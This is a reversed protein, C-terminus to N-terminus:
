KRKKSSRELQERSEKPRRQAEEAAKLSKEAKELLILASMRVSGEPSDLAAMIQEVTETSYGRSSCKSRAVSMSMPGLYGGFREKHVRVPNEALLLSCLSVLVLVITTISYGRGSSASDGGNAVPRSKSTM